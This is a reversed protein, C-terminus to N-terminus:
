RVRRAREASIAGREAPHRLIAATAVLNPPRALPFFQPEVRDIEDAAAKEIRVRLDYWAAQGTVPDCNGYRYPGGPPLLEPILHNLLFGRTSEPGNLALNWAGARKGIANWTWVTDGNVGEMLRVQCKLRSHASIVWVWDDDHLDLAAARARNVYLRNQSLIQRLWAEKPPAGAHSFTLVDAEFAGFIAILLEAPDNLAIAVRAGEPALAQAGDSLAEEPRDHIEIM